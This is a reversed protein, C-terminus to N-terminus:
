DFRNIIDLQHFSNLGKIQYITMTEVIKYSLDDPIAITKAKSNGPTPCRYKPRNSLAIIIIITPISRAAILVKVKPM